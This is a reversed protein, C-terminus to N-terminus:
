LPAEPVVRDLAIRLREIEDEPIKALTRVFSEVVNPWEGQPVAKQDLWYELSLKRETAEGGLVSAAFEPETLIKEVLEQFLTSDKELNM